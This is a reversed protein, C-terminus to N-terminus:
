RKVTSADVVTMAGYGDTWRAVFEARGASEAAGFGAKWDKAAKGDTDVLVRLQYKGPLLAPKGKAWTAARASGPEALLTLSHQWLKGKGFVVRDSTAIPSAEWAGAKADWAFVEVALLKDGWADPTKELKLWIDTGFQKPGTDKAPLDAAAKYKGARLAAADEVFARLARYGQDGTVIKV